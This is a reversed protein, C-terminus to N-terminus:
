VHLGNQWGTHYITEDTCYCFPEFNMFLLSPRPVLSYICHVYTAPARHINDVNRDSFNIINYQITSYFIVVM